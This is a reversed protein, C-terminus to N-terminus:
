ETVKVVGAFKSDGANLHDHFKWTGVKLFKFSWKDGPNLPKKADFEPYDAHSPHPASAPWHPKLDSNRFELTDGIRINIEKPTIGEPNYTVPRVDGERVPAQTAPTPETSAQSCGAGLILLGAALGTFLM